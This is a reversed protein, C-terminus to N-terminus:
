RPIVNPSGMQTFFDLFFQFVTQVLQPETNIKGSNFKEMAKEFQYRSQLYLLKSENNVQAM